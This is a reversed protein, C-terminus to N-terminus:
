FSVYPQWIIRGMMPWGVTNTPDIYGERDMGLVGDKTKEMNRARYRNEGQCKDKCNSGDFIFDFVISMSDDVLCAMVFSALSHHMVSSYRVQDFFYSSAVFIISLLSSISLARANTPSKPPSQAPPCAPPPLALPWRTIAERQFWARSKSPHTQNIINGQHEWASTKKSAVFHMGSNLSAVVIFTSACSCHPHLLLDHFCWRSPLCSNDSSVSHFCIM